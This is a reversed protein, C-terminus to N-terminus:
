PPPQVLLRRLEDGVEPAMGGAEVLYREITGHREHLSALVGAMASRPASFLSQFREIEIGAREFRPRLGAIRRETWYRGTLEYDDLIVEDGVGLVALLLMAAMGTRDKGATCHFLAPLGEHDTLGTLLRVFTAADRAAMQEYVDAMFADDIGDLEGALIRETIERQEGAAGGISLVEARVDDPLVSPQKSREVEHRLDYVVRLGLQGVLAVDEVTLAHLADSRFVRGWRTRGGDDTRYGGLDRFNMSGELVVLREAAVVASGGGMPAVSVYHRGPGLARLVVRDEGSVVARPHGHDIREPTPGTAVEVPGRGELVWSVELNGRGDGDVAVQVVVPEM